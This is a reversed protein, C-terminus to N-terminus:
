HIVDRGRLLGPLSLYPAVARLLEVQGIQQRRWVLASRVDEPLPAAGHFFDYRERLEDPTPLRSRPTPVGERPVAVLFGIDLRAQGEEAAGDSWVLAPAARAPALEVTHPPILPLVALLYRLSAAVAPTM